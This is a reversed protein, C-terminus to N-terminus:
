HWDAAPTDSLLRQARLQEDAAHVREIARAANRVGAAGVAAGTAGAGAVFVSLKALLRPRRVALLAVTAAVVASPLAAAAGPAAADAPVPAAYEAARAYGDPSRATSWEAAIGAVHGAGVVGVTVGGAGVGPLQLARALLLDREAVLTRHMAPPMRSASVALPSVYGSDAKPPLAAPEGGVALVAPAARRLEDDRMREVVAVACSRVAALDDPRASGSDALADRILRRAALLASDAHACGASRLMVLVDDESRPTAKDSSGDRPSDRAAEDRAARLRARLRAITITADRDGLVVTAGVEHAAAVAAAFEAGPESGFLAGGAAYALSLAFGPLEGRYALQALKLASGGRSAVEAGSGVRGLRQAALLREYRVPDLEVVVASPRVARILEAAEDASSASIHASGLVYVSSGSGDPPPLKATHRAWDPAM